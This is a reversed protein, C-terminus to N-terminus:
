EPSLHVPTPLTPKTKTSSKKLWRLCLPFHTTPSNKYSHLTHTHTNTIDKITKISANLFILRCVSAGQNLQTCFHMCYLPASFMQMSTGAFKNSRSPWQVSIRVNTEVYINRNEHATRIIWGNRQLHKKRKQEQSWDALLNHPSRDVWGSGFLMTIRKIKKMNVKILLIRLLDKFIPKRLKM